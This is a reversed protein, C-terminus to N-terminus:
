AIQFRETGLTLWAQENSDVECYELLDYYSNRNFRAWLDDRIHVIPTSLEPQGPLTKLKIPHTSDIEVELGRNTVATLSLRGQLNNKILQTICFPQDDITIKLLQEPARLVIDGDICLMADELLNVLGKRSIPESQYFWDGNSAVRIDIRGKRLGKTDYLWAKNKNDLKANHWVRGIDELLDTV